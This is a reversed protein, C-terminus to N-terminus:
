FLSAQEPVHEGATDDPREPAADTGEPAVIEEVPEIL